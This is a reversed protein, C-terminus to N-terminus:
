SESALGFFQARNVFDVDDQNFLRIFAEHVIVTPQIVALPAQRNLYKGAMKRLEDYVLPMLDNLAEKDGGSWKVLLKTLQEAM